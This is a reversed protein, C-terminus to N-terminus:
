IIRSLLEKKDEILSVLSGTILKARSFNETSSSSQGSLLAIPILRIHLSGFNENIPHSSIRNLQFNSHSGKCIGVGINVVLIIKFM